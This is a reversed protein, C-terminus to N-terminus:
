HAHRIIITSPTERLTERFKIRPRCLTPPQTPDGCTFRFNPGFFGGNEDWDNGPPFRFGRGGVGGNSRSGIYSVEYESEVTPRNEFAFFDYTGAPTRGGSTSAGIVYTGPALIFPAIPLYRFGDILKGPTGAPITTQVLQTGTSTWIAVAHQGAFGDNWSDWLGLDTVRIPSSVSFAYGVTEAEEGSATSLVLRADSSVYFGSTVCGTLAAALSVAILRYIATVALM